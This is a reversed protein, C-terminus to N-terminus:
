VSVKPAPAPTSVEAVETGNGYGYGHGYRGYGYADPGKTPVMTLVLGSVPAGVNRLASLAGQLQNKHTRGAAVVVITGGVSKALIAADTVPLLPPTDYIVVDFMKNFEGIFHNMRASGLLESPNPPIQGAPLVFLEGKGWPQILDELEARDILLDTLGVAGEVGMYEAVTPRRLDADVLLVRSGADALAIALNAGTTSKGESEISSTVVFSRDARGVDLFQLNTRLTRFSEARPSRPDSHVILPRDHARPDFVIGGLIPVDTVGEVDRENRIRTELTERLVAVTLGLALGLITGLVINLPVNPSMPRAPVTAEQAPTLKVPSLADVADPSEIEEVVAALSASVANATEAARAPDTDSVNITIISTDLPASATVRGALQDSTIGLGLTEIVPLLVIPTSVLSSYTKVRQVTFTSGQQLESTTGAGQTSVFVKATASYRPTLTLSYAAAAGVGVLTLLVIVVWGKRLIRIYDRLEM